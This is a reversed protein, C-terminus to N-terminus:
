NLRLERDKSAIREEDLMSVLRQIMSFLEKNSAEGLWPNGDAEGLGNKHTHAYTAHTNVTAQVGECEDQQTSQDEENEDLRSRAARAAFLSHQVLSMVAEEVVLLFRILCALGISCICVTCEGM